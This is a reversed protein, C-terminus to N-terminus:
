RIIFCSHIIFIVLLYANRLICPITQLIVFIQQKRWENTNVKQCIEYFRESLTYPAFSFLLTGAHTIHHGVLKQWCLLAFLLCVNCRSNQGTFFDETCPITPNQLKGPTFVNHM